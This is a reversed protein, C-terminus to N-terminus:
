EERGANGRGYQPAFHGKYMDVADRIAGHLPPGSKLQAADLIEVRKEVVKRKAGTRTHSPSSSWSPKGCHQQPLATLMHAPAAPLTQPSRRGGRQLTHM